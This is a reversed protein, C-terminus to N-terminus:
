YGPALDDIDVPININDYSSLDNLLITKFDRNDARYDNEVRGLTIVKNELSKHANVLAFSDYIPKGFAWADDAFAISSSLSVRSQHYASRANLDKYFSAHELNAAFRNANYQMNLDLITKNLENSELGARFNLAGVFRQNSDQTFELRTKDRRSQHSLKVRHQNNFKYTFSLNIGWEREGKLEDWQAGATYRWQSNVM